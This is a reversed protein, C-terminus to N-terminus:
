RSPSAPPKGDSGIIIAATVGVAIAGLLILSATSGLFRGAAPTEPCALTFGAPLGIAGTSDFTAVPLCGPLEAASRGSCETAARVVRATFEPSRVPDGSAARAEIFYTVTAADPNPRPFLARFGSQARTMEVTFFDQGLSSKFVVRAQTVMAAPEIFADVASHVEAMFCDAAQHDIRLAAEAAAAQVPAPAALAAQPLALALAVVLACLKRVRM